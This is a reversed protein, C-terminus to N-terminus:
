RVCQQVRRRCQACTVESDTNCTADIGILQWGSDGGGPRRTETSVERYCERACRMCLDEGDGLVLFMEYGGPWAYVDRIAARVRRMTEAHSLSM